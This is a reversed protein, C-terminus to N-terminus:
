WDADVVADIEGSQVTRRTGRRELEAIQAETLRPYAGYLDVTETVPEAEPAPGDPTAAADV